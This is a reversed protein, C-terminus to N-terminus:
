ANIGQKAKKVAACLNIRGYGMYENKGESNYEVGGVKEATEVLIQRVESYTLEKNASLILGAAGSVIATANSTGSTRVYQGDLSKKLLYPCFRKFTDVDCSSNMIERLLFGTVGNELGPIDTTLIAWGPAAVDIECGRRFGKVPTDDRNTAQVAIVDPLSAPFVVGQGVPEKKILFNGASGVVVCGKGGRGCKVARKIAREIAQRKQFDGKELETVFWSLNLVDAKGEKWAWDLARRVASPTYIWENTHDGRESAREDAMKVACFSCGASVGKMGVLNHSACAIGAMTTGHFEFDKPEQTPGDRVADYQAVLVSTLDEHDNVVGVDLIAIRISPDGKQIGWAQRAKINELALQDSSLPDGESRQQTSINESISDVLFPDNMKTFVFYDLECYEINEESRIQKALKEQDINPETEVLFEEGEEGFIELIKLNHKELEGVNSADAKKFGILLRDSLFCKCSGVEFPKRVSSISFDDTLKETVDRLGDASVELLIRKDGTDLELVKPSGFKTRSSTYSDGLSKDTM